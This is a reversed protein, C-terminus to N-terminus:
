RRLGYLSILAAESRGDDRVRKFQEAVEPFLSMAKMRAGGKDAPISLARKWAAPYVLTTPIQLAALVGEICGFSRGFSFAGVAGESPRVGVHELFAIAPALREIVCALLAPPVQRRNKKNIVVPVTPMDVIEIVKGDYSLLALAGDLGPDIGLVTM